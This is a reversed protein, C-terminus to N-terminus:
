GDDCLGYLFRQVEPVKARPVSIRLQFEVAASKLIAKNYYSRAGPGFAGQLQRKFTKDTSQEYEVAVTCCHTM